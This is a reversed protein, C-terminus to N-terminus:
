NQTRVLRVDADRMIESISVGDTHVIDILDRIPYTRPEGDVVLLLHDSTLTVTRSRHIRELDGVLVSVIYM